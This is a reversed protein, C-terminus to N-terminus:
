TKSKTSITKYRDDYYVETKFEKIPVWKITFSIENNFKYKDGDLYPSLTMGLTADWDGLHHTLAMSLSRLKFGSSKRKDEDDFRFSNILDILINPEMNEKNTNITDRLEDSMEFIPLDSM